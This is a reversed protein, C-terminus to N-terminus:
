APWPAPTKPTSTEPRTLVEGEGGPGRWPLTFHKGAGAAGQGRRVTVEISGTGQDCRRMVLPPAGKVRRTGGSRGSIQPLSHMRVIAFLRTVVLRTTIAAKATTDACAASTSAM